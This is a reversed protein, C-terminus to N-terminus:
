SRLNVFSHVPEIVNAIISKGYNCTGYICKGYNCASAMFVKAM